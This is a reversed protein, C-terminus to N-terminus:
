HWQAKWGESRGVYTVTGQEPQWVAALVAPPRYTVTCAVSGGLTGAPYVSIAYEAGLTGSWDGHIVRDAADYGQQAAQYPDSAQGIFQACAYAAQSAMSATRHVPIWSLFGLLVLFAIPLVVATEVFAQGSESKAACTVPGARRPSGRLIAM